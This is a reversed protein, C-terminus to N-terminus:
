IQQQSFIGKDQGIGKEKWEGGWGLPLLLLLAVAYDKTALWRWVLVFTSTERGLDISYQHVLGSFVLSM